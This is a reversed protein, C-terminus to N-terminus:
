TSSTNAVSTTRLADLWAQVRLPDLSRDRAGQCVDGRVGFCDPMVGSRSLTAVDALRLSGALAWWLGGEKATEALCTIAAPGLIELSSRGNKIWTDLLCRAFGFDAALRFIQQPSLCGADQWDAYAVAVLETRDDLLDRVGSWLRRLPDADPCQSPGVKAYRFTAPLDAAVAMAEEREGLAASLPPTVLEDAPDISEALRDWREAAWRWIGRKTPALAGRRPEKLDVIGVGAQLAM